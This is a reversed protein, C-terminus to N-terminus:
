SVCRFAFTNSKVGESLTGACISEAGLLKNTLSHPPISGLELRQEM